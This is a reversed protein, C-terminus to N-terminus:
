SLRRYALICIAVVPAYIAVVYAVSSTETGFYMIPRGAVLIVGFLFLVLMVVLISTIVGKRQESTLTETGM